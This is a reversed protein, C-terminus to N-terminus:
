FPGPAISHKLEKLCLGAGVHWLLQKTSPVKRTAECERGREKMRIGSRASIALWTLSHERGHRGEHGHKLPEQTHLAMSIHSGNPHRSPQCLGHGQLNAGGHTHTM